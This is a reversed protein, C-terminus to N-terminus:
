LELNSSQHRFALTQIIKHKIVNECISKQKSIQKTPKQSLPQLSPLSDQPHLQICWEIQLDYLKRLVRAKDCEQVKQKHDYPINRHHKIFCRKSRKCCPTVLTFNRVSPTSIRSIISSGRKVFYLYHNENCLM